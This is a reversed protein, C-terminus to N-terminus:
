GGPGSTYASAAVQELASQYSMFDRYAQNSSDVDSYTVLRLNLAVTALVPTLDQDYLQETITLSEIECPAVSAGFVLLLEPAPPPLVEITGQDLQAQAALVSATPPYALLTLAALAPAIGGADASLRCDLSLTETAAGAFRVVQSRAGPQGGVVNPEITRKVTEPNYQFTIAQKTGDAAMTVLAARKLPLPQGPVSV